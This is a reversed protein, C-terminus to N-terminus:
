CPNKKEGEGKRQERGGFDLGGNSLQIAWTEFVRGIWELVDASRWVGEMGKVERVRVVLSFMVVRQWLIGCNQMM